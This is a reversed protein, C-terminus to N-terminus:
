YSMDKIIQWSEPCGNYSIKLKRVHNMVFITEEETLGVVDEKGDYQCILINGALMPEHTSKGFASVRYDSKLLGEDDCIIQFSKGGINRMPMDITHCQLLQYYEELEPKVWIVEARESGYVDVFVARIKGDHERAEFEKERTNNRESIEKMSELKDRITM